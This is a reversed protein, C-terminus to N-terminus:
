DDLMIFPAWYYPNSYKTSTQMHDRTKNLAVQKSEGSLLNRYFEIMFERTAADDIKWLSMLVTQVGAQKFGYQLGMVGETSLLGLGTDCASLVVIDVKNLDLTSIESALLVGDDTDNPVMNDTWAHNAGSFILGSNNMESNSYYDQPYKLMNLYSNTSSDDPKFFGHTAIHVISYDNGSISKFSEEVGANSEILTCEIGSSSCIENISEIEIKTEPLSEWKKSGTVHSGRLNVDQDDLYALSVTHMDDIDMDYNLDGFLIAKSFHNIHEKSCLNRTSSVRHFSYKEYARCGTSDPLVEINLQHLKGAPSFYVNGGHYIYDKLREWILDNLLVSNSANQLEKMFLGEEGLPIFVPSPTSKTLVLAAYITINDENLFSLFEIATDRIGLANQVDQWTIDMSATFDGYFCSLELLERESNHIVRKLSDSYSVPNSNSDFGERLVERTQRIENYLSVVRENNSELIIRQLNTQNSLLLGKYLLASDYCLKSFSVDHIYFCDKPIKQSFLDSFMGWYRVREDSTMWIFNHKLYSKAQSYYETLVAYADNYSRSIEYATSLIWLSFLYNLNNSSPRQLYIDQYAKAYSIAKDIENAYLYERSLELLTEAYDISNKGDAKYQIDLSKNLLEIAEPSKNQSAYLRALSLVGRSYLPHETGFWTDIYSLSKIILEEAKIPNRYRYHYALSHLLAPYAIDGQSDSNEYMVSAEEAYKLSNDEDGIRDYCRSLNNLAVAAGYYNNESLYLSQADSLFSIASKYDGKKLYSDGINNLCRGYTDKDVKHKKCLEISELGLSIANEYDGLENYIQCANQKADIIESITINTSSNIIALAKDNIIRALSYNELRIAVMTFNNYKHAQESKELIVNEILPVANEIAAVAQSRQNTRVYCTILHITTNLYEDSYIGYLQEAIQQSEIELPIADEFNNIYRYYQSLISANYFLWEKSVPDADSAFLDKSRLSLKLFDDTHGIALYNLSQHLLIIGFDSSDKYTTKGIYKIAENSLRIAREYNANNYELVALSDYEFAKDFLAENSQAFAFASILIFSLFCLLKKMMLSKSKDHAFKTM